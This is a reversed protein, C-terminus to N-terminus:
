RERDCSAEPLCYMSLSGTPFASVTISFEGIRRVSMYQNEKACAIQEPAEKTALNLGHALSKFFLFNSAGVILQVTQGPDYQNIERTAWEEHM